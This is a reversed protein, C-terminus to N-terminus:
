RNTQIVILEGIFEHMSAHKASTGQLVCVLRRGSFTSRSAQMYGPCVCETDNSPMTIEVSRSARGSDRHLACPDTNMM